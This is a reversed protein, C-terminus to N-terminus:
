FPLNKLRQPDRLCKIQETEVFWNLYTDMRQTSAEKRQVIISDNMFSEMKDACILLRSPMEIFNTERKKRVLPGYEDDSIYATDELDIQEYCDSLEQDPAEMASLLFTICATFYLFNNMLKM